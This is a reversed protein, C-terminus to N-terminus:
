LLRDGRQKSAMKRLLRRKAAPNTVLEAARKWDGLAGARDGLRMELDGIEELLEPNAPLSQAALRLESLAQDSQGLQMWLSAIRCHVGPYQPRLMEIRKYLAMALQSARNHTLYDGYGILSPLHEADADLNAKWLSEAESSKGGRSLLLALNGRANM